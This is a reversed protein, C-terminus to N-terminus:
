VNGVPQIAVLTVVTFASGATIPPVSAKHVPVEVVSVLAVVPPVHLLVVSVTAM